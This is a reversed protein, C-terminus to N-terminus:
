SPGGQDEAIDALRVRPASEWDIEQELTAIDQFPFETLLREAKALSRGLGRYLKIRRGLGIGPIVPQDPDFDRPHFYSMVYPQARVLARVKWYPLLRFWGGAALHIQKHWLPALGMPFEKLEGRQCELIAPRAPGFRPFGGHRRRAPVISADIEIGKEILTEFVWPMSERISFGPARFARVRTGSAEELAGLARTLDERFTQPDQSHVPRHRHSHCAVEHGRQAIDRVVEPYREGIWGVCFFTARRRTRELLSFIREMNNHIRSEMQDWGAEDDTRPNGLIHFWEEVDITLVHM